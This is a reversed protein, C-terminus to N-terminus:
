RVFGAPWPYDCPAVNGRCSTKFESERQCDSSVCNLYISNGQGQVVAGRDDVMVGYGGNCAIENGSITVKSAADAVDVGHAFDFGGHKQGFFGVFNNRITVDPSRAISIGGGGYMATRGIVENNEILVTGSCRWIVIQGGIAGIIELYGDRSRQIRGRCNQITVSGGSGVDEIRIAVSAFRIPSEFGERADPFFGQILCNDITVQPADGTVFVPTGLFARITSEKILVSASESVYIAYGSGGGGAFILSANITLSSSGRVEVSGDTDFPRGWIKVNSLAVKASGEVRLVTRSFSPANLNEFFPPQITLDQFVVYGAVVRILPQAAFTTGKILPWLTPDGTGGKIILTKDIVVGSSGIYYVYGNVVIVDGPLAARVADGLNDYDGGKYQVILERASGIVGPLFASIVVLLCVLARSRRLFVVDEKPRALSRDRLPVGPSDMARKSGLGGVRQGRWQTVENM